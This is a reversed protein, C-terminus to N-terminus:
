EEVAKKVEAEVIEALDLEAKKAWNEHCVTIDVDLPVLFLQRGEKSCFTTMANILENFIAGDRWDYDIVVEDHVPFLLKSRRGLLFKHIRVLAIKLIDAATGQILTNVARYKLNWPIERWRGFLNRVGGQRGCWREVKEKFTMVGPFEETYRECYTEADDLGIKCQEALATPSAGYVQAFNFKKGIARQEKSVQNESIKFLKSATLTHLDSGRKYAQLLKEERSFNALLRYEVQNLDLALLVSEKSLPLVAKRISFEKRVPDEEDERPLNMLNPEAAGMRGTRAAEQRLSTHLRGDADSRSLMGEVFTRLLISVTRYRLISSVLPLHTYKELVRKDMSPTELTEQGRKRRRWEPKVGREQLIESVQRVSRLDFVRGAIEYIQVELRTQMQILKEKIEELYPRDVRIGADEMAIIAPILPMEVAEYLKLLKPDKELLARYKRWLLLTWYVDEGCYRGLVEPPVNRYAGRPVHKHTVGLQAKRCWAILIEWTKHIRGFEQKILADLGVRQYTTRLLRALIQIDELPSVGVGRAAMMHADFRINAGIKMISPSELLHVITEPYTSDGLTPLYWTSIQGDEIVGIGLGVPRDGDWWFLGDTETDFGLHGLKFALESVRALDAEPDHILTHLWRYRM